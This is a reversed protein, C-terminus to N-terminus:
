LGAQNTRAFEGFFHIAAADYAAAAEEIADFRGLHYRKDNCRITAQWKRRDKDWSVGKFGSTNNRRLPTNARQQTGTAFRLNTRRNDLKDLNIHDVQVGSPAHMIERHMSLQSARKGDWTNRQAYGRKNFHWRFQSLYEYDADDVLAHQKGNSM